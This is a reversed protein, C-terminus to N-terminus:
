TMWEEFCTVIPPMVALGPRQIDLCSFASSSVSPCPSRSRRPARSQRLVDIFLEWLKHQWIPEKCSSRSALMRQKIRQIEIQLMSCHIACSRTRAECTPAVAVAGDWSNHLCSTGNRALLVFLNNTIIAPHCPPRKVRDPGQNPNNRVGSRRNPRRMERCITLRAAM